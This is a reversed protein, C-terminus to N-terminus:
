RHEQKCRMPRAEVPEHCSSESPQWEQVAFAVSRHRGAAMTCRLVTLPGPRSSRIIRREGQSRRSSLGHARVAAHTAAHWAEKLCVSVAAYAAHDHPATSDRYRYADDADEWAAAVEAGASLGDAFREAVEVAHRSRGDGVLSWIRRCCAVAFLRLKREGAWDTGRVFDLMAQPDTSSLWDAEDM